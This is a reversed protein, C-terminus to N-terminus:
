QEVRANYFAQKDLEVRDPRIVPAYLQESAFRELLENYAKHEGEYPRITLENQFTQQMPINRRNKRTWDELSPMSSKMEFTDRNMLLYWLHTKLEAYRHHRSIEGLEEFREWSHADATRSLEYWHSDEQTIQKEAWANLSPMLSEYNIFLFSFVLALLLMPPGLWLYLRQRLQYFKM